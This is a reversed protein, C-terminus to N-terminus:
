ASKQLNKRAEIVTHNYCIELEGDNIWFNFAVKFTAKITNNDVIVSQIYNQLLIKKKEVNETTLLEKRLTKIKDEGDKRTVMIESKESEAKDIINQYERIQTETSELKEALTQNFGTQSIAEVLNSRSIKLGQLSNRAYKVE